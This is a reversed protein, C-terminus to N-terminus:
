NAVFDYLSSRKGTNTAVLYFRGTWAPTVRLVCGDVPRTDCELVNANEDLLCCDIDGDGDGRVIFVTTEAANCTIAYRTTQGSLLLDHDMVTGSTPDALAISSTFVLSAIIGFINKKM